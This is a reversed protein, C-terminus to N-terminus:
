QKGPLGQGLRQEIVESLTCGDRKAWFSLVSWAYHSLTVNKVENNDARKRAARIANKMQIWENHNLWTECWINITDVREPQSQWDQSAAYTRTEGLWLPNKLKKEIWRRAFWHDASTIRYRQRGM